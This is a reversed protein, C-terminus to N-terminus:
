FYANTASNWSGISFGFLISGISITFVLPALYSMKVQKINENSPKNKQVIPQNENNGIEEEHDSM